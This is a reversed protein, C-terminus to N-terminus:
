ITKRKLASMMMFLGSIAICIWSFWEGHRDYFTTEKWLPIDALVTREEFIRTKHSVRGYPDIIM